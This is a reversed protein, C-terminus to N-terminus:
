GKRRFLVSFLTSPFCFYTVAAVAAVGTFLGGLLYALTFANVRFLWAVALIWVAGMGCAFRKPAGNKPLKPTNTVFRIIYNYLLDFPHVPFIAGLAAIASLVILFPVSALVTALGMTLACVGYTFRLWPVVATFQPESSCVFGQMELRKQFRPSLSMM